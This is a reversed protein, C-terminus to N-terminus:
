KEGSDLSTFVADLDYEYFPIKERWLDQDPSRPAYARGSEQALAQLLPELQRKKWDSKMALGWADALDQSVGSRFLLNGTMKVLHDDRHRSICRVKELADRVPYIHSRTLTEYVMIGFAFWDSPPYVKEGRSQEPSLFEVTGQVRNPESIIDLREELDSSLGFDIIKVKEGELLINEPKLDRHVVQAKELERLGYGVDLLKGLKEELPHFADRLYHYLPEGHIYEMSVRVPNGGEIGRFRPFFPNGDLKQLICAENFTYRDGRFRESLISFKEVWYDGSDPELVKFAASIGGEGIYERLLNGETSMGKSAKPGPLVLLQRTHDSESLAM